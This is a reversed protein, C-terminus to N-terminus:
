ALRDELILPEGADGADDAGVPEAGNAPCVLDDEQLFSLDDVNARVALQDLAARGVPREDELLGVRDHEAGVALDDGLAVAVAPEPCGERRRGLSDERGSWFFHLVSVSRPGLQARAKGKGPGAARAGPRTCNLPIRRQSATAMTASRTPPPM